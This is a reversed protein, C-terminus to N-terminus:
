GFELSERLMLIEFDSRISSAMQNILTVLWWSITDQRSEQQWHGDETPDAFEFRIFLYGRAGDCRRNSKIAVVPACSLPHVDMHIYIHIYIYM